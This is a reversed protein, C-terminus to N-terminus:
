QAASDTSITFSEEHRVAFDTEITIQVEIENTKKASYPDVIVDLGAWDAYIADQYNGFLAQSGPLNTTIFTPYGNVTNDETDYLFKATNAAKEKQKWKGLTAPDIIYALAGRLANDKGVETEMDVVKSWTAAAGFTISNVGTVNLIGTPQGNNGSGQIGAKDKEVAIGLAIDERVLAEVDISAQRLLQLTYKTLGVLRHPTLVIQKFTSSAETSTGTESLWTVSAGGSIKPIAVNGTLGTLQRAGARIMVQAARLLEILSAGLVDTGVLYGGSSADGVSMARAGGRHFVVREGDFIAREGLMVDHPIFFGHPDRGYQKAAQESAERELGEIRGKTAMQHIARTLRYDRLQKRTMGILNGRLEDDSATEIKKQGDAIRSLIERGFRDNDWGEKVAQARLEDMNPVRDAFRKAAEEIEAMRQREKGRASDEAAEIKQKVELDLEMKNKGGHPNNSQEARGQLRATNDFDRGVGVKDDAPISVISIEFPEWDTVRYTAMEGEKKELVLEHNRYFMSAKSRIGDVVDRFIEDAGASRSFRVLARGTRDKDISAYEVVGIQRERDHELLLPAANNLRDLRASGDGHDLIEMGWWREVPAESSFAVEVTREEENIVDKGIDVERSLFEGRVRRLIREDGDGGNARGTAAEFREFKINNDRLWKRAEAATWNKTPFRISQPIPNDSPKDSGKLKGWIVAASAPVKKSGFITGDDVRRFTDPNFDNPNRLRAAHENPFPRGELLAQREEDTLPTGAEYLRRLEEDSTLVITITGTDLETRTNM